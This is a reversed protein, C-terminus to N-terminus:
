SKKPDRIMKPRTWIVKVKQFFWTPNLWVDPSNPPDTLDLDPKSMKGGRYVLPAILSTPNTQDLLITSDCTPSSRSEPQRTDDITPNPDSQSKLFSLNLQTDPLNMLDPWTKGDRIKYIYIYISIKLQIITYIYVFGRSWKAFRWCKDCTSCCWAGVTRHINRSAGSFRTRSLISTLGQSILASM